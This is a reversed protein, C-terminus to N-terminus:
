KIKLHYTRVLPDRVKTALKKQSRGKAHLMRMRGDLRSKLDELTRYYSGSGGYSHCFRCLLQLNPLNEYTESRSGSKNLPIVHHIELRSTSGCIECRGGMIERLYAMRRKHRGKQCRRQGRLVKRRTNMYRIYARAHEVKVGLKEAIEYYSLGEDRLKSALIYKPEKM